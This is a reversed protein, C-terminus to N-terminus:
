GWTGAGEGGNGNSGRGKGVREWLFGADRAWQIPDIHGSSPWAGLNKYSYIYSVVLLTFFRSDWKPLSCSGSCLKFYSKITDNSCASILQWCRFCDTCYNKQNKQDMKCTEEIEVTIGKRHPHSDFLYSALLHE